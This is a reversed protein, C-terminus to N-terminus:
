VGRQRALFAEAERRSRLRVFELRELDTSAMASEFRDRYKGHQTWAWRVVSLHPDWALLNRMSERNGNWLQEHRVVRRLSRTTVQRMVTRRPPDLWVITDARQWVPGEIVVSRYNGDIVWTETSAIKDVVAYFTAPDIPEWDALHHIADLEVWPAGIEAALRQAFRTKGAGANGVVSVRRMVAEGVVREDTPTAM